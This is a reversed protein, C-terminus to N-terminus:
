VRVLRHWVKVSGWRLLPGLMSISSHSREVDPADLTADTSDDGNDQSSTAEKLLDQRFPAQFLETAIEAVSKRAPGTLAALIAKREGALDGELSREVAAAQIAKMGVERADSRMWVQDVHDHHLVLCVGLVAILGAGRQRGAEQVSGNASVLTAKVEDVAHHVGELEGVTQAIATAHCHCIDNITVDQDAAVARLANCIIAVMQQGDAAITSPADALAQAEFVLKVLPTIDDNRACNEVLSRINSNSSEEQNDRGLYLAM